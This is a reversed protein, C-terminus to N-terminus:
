PTSWTLRRFSHIEDLIVSGNLGENRWSDSSLCRIEKGTDRHRILSRSDVVELVKSLTPSAEVSQRVMRFMTRAQLRDNAALFVDQAPAHCCLVFQALQSM